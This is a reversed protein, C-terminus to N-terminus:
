FGSQISASFAVCSTKEDWSGLRNRRCGSLDNKVCGEFGRQRGRSSHACCPAPTRRILRCVPTEVSSPRCSLPKPRRVNRRKSASARRFRTEFSFNHRTYDRSSSMTACIAGSFSKTGHIARFFPGQALFRPENDIETRIRDLIV